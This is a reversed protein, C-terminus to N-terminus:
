AKFFHKIKECVYELQDDTIGPYIPLSLCSDALSETNPFDGKMYGLHSFCQQLHLPLPYHLGTAIGNDSLHRALRDRGDTKIVYLHYVHGAYPMEMPLTLQEVNALAESYFKAARRREETWRSLYKLKIKLAAGQIGEMRYNHGYSEHYYKKRSGHDRLMRFRDALEDCDTTLAGGEGIAGLNKGPYFSFSASRALSGAKRGNYEAIHAQAADEILLLNRSSCLDRLPDINACQGYLHVAVIAKTRPTIKKEADDPSINYSDTECDAFVPMAGCLTVGWATAIFTNAPLIVEDGPGIGEAWLAIHNADTGSSVAVCHNTGCAKAFDNEFELVPNGLIFSANDIIAEIAPMLEKKLEKHLLKLDTFPVNM